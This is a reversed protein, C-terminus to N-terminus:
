QDYAKEGSSQPSETDAAPLSVLATTGIGPTSDICISGGLGTVIERVVTLGLGTGRGPEKTTFFPIFIKDRITEDIGCGTDQIQIDVTREKQVSNVTLTGGRPMAHIANLVLNAVVQRLHAPDAIIQKVDDSLKLELVIHEKSLRYEFLSLAERVVKNVDVRAKRQPMKRGYLLLKRVIERAHLSNAIIKELDGASQGMLNTEKAALQAFGLINTLPENLEHAVAAALQGIVALRNSHKLQEKIQAQEDEYLRREIRLSLEKAITDLLKREEALFPGENLEPKHSLYAVQVRGRQKNNIVIDASQEQKGEAYDQSTHCQDDFQIRSVADDNYLWASPIIKVIEGLIDGLSKDATDLVNAIRYLCSLEKVREQLSWTVRWHRLAITFVRSLSELFRVERTSFQPLRNRSFQLYGRSEGDDELYILALSRIGDTWGSREFLSRPSPEDFLSKLRRADNTWFNGYESFRNSPMRLLQDRREILMQLLDESQKLSTFAFRKGAGLDERAFVAPSIGPDLEERAIFATGTNLRVLVTDCNAYEGLVNLGAKLFVSSELSEGALGLLRTTLSVLTADPNKRYKTSMEERTKIVFHLAGTAESLASARYLNIIISPLAPM